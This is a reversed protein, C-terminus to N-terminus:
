KNLEKLLKKLDLGHVKAAEEISESSAMPCFICHLGNQMFIEASKPRKKLVEAITMEKKIM